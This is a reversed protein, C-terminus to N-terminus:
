RLVSWNGSDLLGLGKAFVGEAKGWEIFEKKLERVLIGVGSSPMHALNVPVVTGNPLTGHIYSIDGILGRGPWVDALVRVRTIRGNANRLERLTYTRSHDVQEHYEATVSPQGTATDYISNM